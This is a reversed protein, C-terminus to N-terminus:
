VNKKEKKRNVTNYGTTDGNCSFLHTQGWIVQLHLHFIFGQVRSILMQLTNVKICLLLWNAESFCCDPVTPMWHWHFTPSSLCQPTWQWGSLVDLCKSWRLKVCHWLFMDNQHCHSIWQCLLKMKVCSKFTKTVTKQLNVITNRPVYSSNLASFKLLTELFTGFCKLFVTFDCNKLSMWLGELYSRTVASTGRNPILWHLM